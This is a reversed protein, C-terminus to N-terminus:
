GRPRLRWDPLTREETVLEDDRKSMQADVGGEGTKTVLPSREASMSTKDRRETQCKEPSRFLSKWHRASKRPGFHFSRQDWKSVVPNMEFLKRATLVGAAFHANPNPARGFDHSM